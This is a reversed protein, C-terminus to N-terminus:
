KLYSSTTVVKRSESLTEERNKIASIVDSKSMVLLQLWESFEKVSYRISNNETDIFVLPWENNENLDNTVWYWDGKRKKNKTLALLASTTVTGESTQLEDPLNNFQDKIFMTKKTSLISTDYIMEGGDGFYTLFLKYSEPLTLNIKKEFSHINEETLKTGINKHKNYDDALNIILDMTTDEILSSQKISDIQKKANKILMKDSINRDISSSIDTNKLYIFGFVLAILTCTFFSKLTIKEM